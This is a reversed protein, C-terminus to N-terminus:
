FQEVYGKSETEFIQQQTSLHDYVGSFQFAFSEGENKPNPIRVIGHGDTTETTVIADKGLESQQQPRVRAVVRIATM